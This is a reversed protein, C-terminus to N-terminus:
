QELDGTGRAWRVDDTCARTVHFIAPVPPDPDPDPDSPVPLSCPDIVESLVKGEGSGAMSRTSICMWARSTTGYRMTRVTRVVGERSMEEVDGATWDVLCRAGWRREFLGRLEKHQAPAKRDRITYLQRLERGFRLARYSDSETKWSDKALEFNSVCRRKSSRQRGRTRHTVRIVSGAYMEEYVLRRLAELVHYFACDVSIDNKSSHFPTFIELHVNLQGSRRLSTIGQELGCCTRYFDRQHSDNDAALLLHLSRIFHSPMLTKSPVLAHRYDGGLVRNFTALNLFSLTNRSYFWEAAEHAVQPDMYKTNFVLVPPTAEPSFPEFYREIISGLSREVNWEMSIPIKEDCLYSYCLDRLERPLRSHLMATLELCEIQGCRKLEKNLERHSFDAVYEWNNVYFLFSTSAHRQLTKRQERKRGIQQALIKMHRQWDAIDALIGYDKYKFEELREASQELASM